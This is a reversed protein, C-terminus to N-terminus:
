SIWDYKIMKESSNKAKFQFFNSELQSDFEYGKFSAVRQKNSSGGGWNMKQIM